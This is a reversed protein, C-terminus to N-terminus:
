CHIFYLHTSVFISKKTVESHWIFDFHLTPHNTSTLFTDEEDDYMPIAVRIVEMAVVLVTTMTRVNMYKFM